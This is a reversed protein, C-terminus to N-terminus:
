VQPREVFWIGRKKEARITGNKIYSYLSRTTRHYLKAAENIPILSSEANNRSLQRALELVDAASMEIKVNYRAMLEIEATSM